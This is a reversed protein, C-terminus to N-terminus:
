DIRHMYQGVRREHAATALAQQAAIALEKNQLDLEARKHLADQELEKIQRDIIGIERDFSDEKEGRQFLPAQPPNELAPQHARHEAKRIEKVHSERISVAEGDLCCLKRKLWHWFGYGCCSNIKGAKNDAEKIRLDIAEIAQMHGRIQDGQMHLTDSSERAIQLTKHNTEITRQLAEHTQVRLSPDIPM